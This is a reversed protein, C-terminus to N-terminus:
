LSSLRKLRDRQMCRLPSFQFIIQFRDLLEIPLPAAGPGILNGGCGLAIDADPTVFKLLSRFFEIGFALIILVASNPIKRSAIYPAIHWFLANNNIASL